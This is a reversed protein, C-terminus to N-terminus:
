SSVPIGPVGLTERAEAINEGSVGSDSVDHVWFM